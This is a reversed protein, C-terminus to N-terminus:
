KEKGEESGKRDGEYGEEDKEREGTGKVDEVRGQREDESRKRGKV